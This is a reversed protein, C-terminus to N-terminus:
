ADFEEDVMDRSITGTLRLRGRHELVNRTQASRRAEATAVERQRRLADNRSFRRRQAKAKIKRKCALTERDESM